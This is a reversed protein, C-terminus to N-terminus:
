SEEEGNLWLELLAPRRWGERRDGGEPRRAEIGQAYFNGVVEEVKGLRWGLREEAPDALISAELRWPHYSRGEGDIRREPRGGGM